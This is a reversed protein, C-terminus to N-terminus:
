MDSSFCSTRRPQKLFTVEVLCLYPRLLLLQGTGQAGGWREEEEKSLFLAGEVMQYGTAPYLGIGQRDASDEGQKEVPPPPPPPPPPAPFANLGSSNAFLFVEPTM